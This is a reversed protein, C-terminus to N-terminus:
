GDPIRFTCDNLWARSITSELLKVSLFEFTTGLPRSKPRSVQNPLGPGKMHDITCIWLNGINM